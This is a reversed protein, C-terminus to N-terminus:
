WKQDANKLYNQLSMIRQLKMKLTSMPTGNSAAQRTRELDVVNTTISHTTTHSSIKSLGSFEIFHRPYHGIHYLSTYLLFCLITDSPNLHHHM